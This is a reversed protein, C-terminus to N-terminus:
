RAAKMLPMPQFRSFMPMTDKRSQCAVLDVRADALAYVLARAHPAVFFTEGREVVYDTADGDITIWLTGLRCAIELGGADEITHVQRRALLLTAPAATM